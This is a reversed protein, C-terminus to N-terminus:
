YHLHRNHAASRHSPSLRAHLVISKENEETGIQM